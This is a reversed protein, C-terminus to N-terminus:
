PAAPNPGAIWNFAAGSQRKGSVDTYSYASRDPAAFVNVRNGEVWENSRPHGKLLVVANQHNIGPLRPVTADPASPSVLVGSEEKRLVTGFVHVANQKILPALKERRAADAAANARATEDKKRQEEARKENERSAAEKDARAKAAALPDFKYIARLTAPLKEFPITEVGSQTMVELGDATSGKIEVDQYKRGDTTEITVLNKGVPKAPNPKGPRSPTKRTPSTRTSATPKKRAPTAWTQQIADLQRQLEPYSQRARQLATKTSGPISSSGGPYPIFIPNQGPFVRFQGGHRDTVVINTGLNQFSRYEVLSAVAQTGPKFIVCGKAASGSQGSAPTCAFALCWIAASAALKTLFRGAAPRLTM